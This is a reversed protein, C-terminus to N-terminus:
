QLQISPDHAVFEVRAALFPQILGCRRRRCRREVGHLDARKALGALDRQQQLLESLNGRLPALLFTLVAIKELLLDGGGNFRPTGHEFSHFQFVFELGVADIDGQRRQRLGFAAHMRDALGHILDDGDEALHSKRDGLTGVDLIIEVIKGREVNRGLM